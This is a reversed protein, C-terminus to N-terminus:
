LTAKNENLNKLIKVFKIYLEKENWNDDKLKNIVYEKLEKMAKKNKIYSMKNDKIYSAITIARNINKDM